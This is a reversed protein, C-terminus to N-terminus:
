LREGYESFILARRYESLLNHDFKTLQTELDALEKQYMKLMDESIKLFTMREGRMKRLKKSKIEETLQFIGIKTSEISDFTRDEAEVKLYMRFYERDAIRNAERVVRVESETIKDLNYKFSKRGRSILEKEVVGLNMRLITIFGESQFRIVYQKRDSGEVEIETKRQNDTMLNTLQQKVTQLKTM